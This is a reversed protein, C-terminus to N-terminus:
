SLKGQSDQSSFDEHGSPCRSYRRVPRPDAPDVRSNSHTSTPSCLDQRPWLLYVDHYQECYLSNDFSAFPNFKPVKDDNPINPTPCHVSWSSDLSAKPQPTQNVHQHQIINSAITGFACTRLFSYLTTKIVQSFFAESLLEKSPRAITLICFYHHWYFLPSRWQRKKKM